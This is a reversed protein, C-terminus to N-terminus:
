KTYSQFHNFYGNFIMIIMTFDSYFKGNFFDDSKKSKAQKTQILIEAADFHGHETTFELKGFKCNDRPQDKGFEMSSSKAVEILDTMTEIACESWQETEM